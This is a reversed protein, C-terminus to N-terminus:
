SRRLRWPREPRPEPPPEDGEPACSPAPAGGMLQTFLAQGQALVSPTLGNGSGPRAGPADGFPAERAPARAPRVAQHDAHWQRHKASDSVVAGCVTCEEVTM